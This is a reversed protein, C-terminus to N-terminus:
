LLTFQLIFKPRIVTRANIAQNKGYALGTITASRAFAKTDQHVTEGALELERLRESIERGDSAQVLTWEHNKNQPEADQQAYKILTNIIIYLIYL